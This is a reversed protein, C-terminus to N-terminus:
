LEAAPDAELLYYRSGSGAFTTTLEEKAVFGASRLAAWVSMEDWCRISFRDRYEAWNDDSGAVRIEEEYTFVQDREHNVRVTRELMEDKHTYGGFLRESPIDILLQGGPKLANYAAAMALNLSKEDLLYLLVTFVCLALDHEGTGPYDQMKARITRIPHKPRPQLKGEKAALQDMMDASPELSTVAFGRESLPLSLRGTGAGFDIIRSGPPLREEVLSLTTDTLGQYLPGFTRKYALDYIHAWSDHPSGRM